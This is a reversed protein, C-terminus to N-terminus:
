KVLSAIESAFDDQKKEIGEGKEFRTFGNISVKGGLAKSVEALHQEVSIKDGKVYAQQLLCNEEYYKGIRGTVMKELINEPKGSNKPDQKAQVLLIEKEKEIVESNVDSKDLYAPNMAAIQMALDRGLEVVEGKTELDAPVDLNIIVGIRGGMHVYPLSLGEAYRAFRRVKINEGIVLVKEQQMQEVTLTTGPYKCALLADVDAPNEKAVVLTVNKVFDVFLENKAVFDTEANVEVVAGVGDFVDAYAMGEAAIRGAKKQAAALGKERLWEVAKELDGDSETLAKKCDMMGVGTQERLNKVDQASFAMNFRGETHHNHPFVGTKSLGTQFRRRM